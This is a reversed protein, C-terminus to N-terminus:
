SPLTWTMGLHAMVLVSSKATHYVGPTAAGQLSIWAFESL